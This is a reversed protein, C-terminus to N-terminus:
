KWMKKKTLFWSSASSTRRKPSRVGRWKTWLRLPISVPPIIALVPFRTSFPSHRNWPFIENRFFTLVFCNPDLDLPFVYLPSIRPYRQPCQGRFISSFVNCSDRDINDVRDLRDVPCTSNSGPISISDDSMRAINTRWFDPRSVRSEPDQGCIFMIRVWRIAFSLPCLVHFHHHFRVSLCACVILFSSYRDWLFIENRFITLVYCYPPPIGWCREVDRLM